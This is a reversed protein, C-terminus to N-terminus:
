ALPWFVVVVLLYIACTTNETPALLLVYTDRGIPLGIVEPRLKCMQSNIAFFLRYATKGQGFKRREVPAGYPTTSQHSRKGNSCHCHFAGPFWALVLAIEAARLRNAEGLAFYGFKPLCYSRIDAINAGDLFVNRPLRLCTLVEGM